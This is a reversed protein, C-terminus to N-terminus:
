PKPKQKAAAPEKSSRREAEQTLEAARDAYQKAAAKRQTESLGADKEALPVCRALVAAGTQAANADERLADAMKEAVKAAEAHKEQQLLTEALEGLFTSLRSRYDANSPFDAMLKEENAVAQRCPKEGEQARGTNRLLSGLLWNAYALEHHYWPERPYDAVLKEYLPLAQRYTLEAEALRGASQLV